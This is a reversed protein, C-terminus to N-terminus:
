RYEAAHHPCLWLYHGEPTLVKKLGGWVQNPDLTDLLKRLTRLSAGDAEEPFLQREHEDAWEAGATTKVDPALEWLQTTLQNTLEIQLSFHELYDASLTTEALPPIVPVAYRLLTSMRRLHHEMNRLWQRPQTIIYHGHDSGITYVDQSAPHWQGPYQCYLQLELEKGLLRTIPKLNRPTITFIYPCHSQEFAQEHRYLVAFERQLYSRMEGIEGLLEEHHEAATAKIEELRRIVEDRTIPYDLGFLLEAVSVQKFSVQCQVETIQMELARQLNQYDFEYSCPQGNHGPCPIMRKFDLGPFRDLTVEFGDKLLAFFNQPYPGRVTLDIYREHPFARVLAKHKDESDKFLAGNRWHTGTTFRHSRAIFWTPIGAPMTSNLRFKLTMEGGSEIPRIDDWMEHYDAEDFSLREVVLSKNENDEPIRYSLDFKEMMRLFRDRMIVPIDSWVVDMQARTFIGLTNIVDESTLVKSIYESVWQPKLIVTDRLEEDDPFYLIDGLEHLWRVLIGRSEETVGNEGMNTWLEQQTIHKHPSERVTNAANLWTTPWIEGMLPLSAAERQIAEHLTKIGEGTKSSIEIQGIIQPYTNMIEALPLDASREDIHTAVLIIPSEPARAKITDLWYYLRGQEFGLRANWVLLFLSRNTLFFQHTAHYIVQGGFDWANLTMTVTQGPHDCEIPQIAVGHTSDENPDYEEGRLKKLLTTKGVGGEGVVVLKSVWQSTGGKAQERLYRLIAETGQRVIEPPPATLRNGGLELTTLNTLQGLEPPLKKIKNGSLFLRQLNVLFGIESPLSSIQNSTLGLDRLYQLAGITNPLSKLKNDFVYLRTLNILNGIEVPLTRLDSDPTGGLYLERLKILNGIDTPLKILKNLHLNLEELESLEGIQAPLEQLANDEISLTRLNALRGIESPLVVLHNYDLSLTVLSILEGIKAPLETLLNHSLDLETLRKLEFLEPPLEELLLGSLDLKTAGTKQAWEIRKLAETAKPRQFNEIM